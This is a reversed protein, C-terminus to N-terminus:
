SEVASWNDVADVHGREAKLRAILKAFTALDAHDAEKSENRRIEELWVRCLCLFEDKEPQRLQDGSERTHLFEDLKEAGIGVNPM